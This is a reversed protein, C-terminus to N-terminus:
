YLVSISPALETNLFSTFVIINALFSVFKADCSYHIVNRCLCGSIASLLLKGKFSNVRRPKDRPKNAHINPRPETAVSDEGYGRGVIAVDSSPNDRFTVGGLPNFDLHPAEPTTRANEKNERMDRISAKRALRPRSEFPDPEPKNRRFFFFSIEFHLRLEFLLYETLFEKMQSKQSKITFLFTDQMM